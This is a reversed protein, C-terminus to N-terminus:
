LGDGRFGPRYRQWARGRRQWNRQARGEEPSTTFSNKKRSVIVMGSLSGGLIRNNLSTLLLLRGPRPIVTSAQNVSDGKPTQLFIKQSRSEGRDRSEGSRSM